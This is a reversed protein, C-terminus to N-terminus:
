PGWPGGVILVLLAWFLNLANRAFKNRGPPGPRSAIGSESRAPGGTGLVAVRWNTGRARALWIAAPCCFWITLLECYSNPAQGHSRRAQM